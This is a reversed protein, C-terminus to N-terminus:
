SAGARPAQAPQQRLSEKRKMALYEGREMEHLQRPYREVAAFWDRFSKEARLPAPVSRSGLFAEIALYLRMSNREVLGRKGGVHRPEGDAHRGVVTFGVKDRGITGLYAEMALRGAMGYSWAYSLRILTMGGDAPMATLVIRYDHTDLPGSGARLDVELFGATRAAVRYAFQLRYAEEMPQDHKRGIGVHLGQAGDVPAPLCYKTNPPLILIDCWRSPDGLAASAHDFPYAVLAHIEGWARTEGETSDLFLTRGLPRRAPDHALADYRGRMAAALGEIGAEGAAAAPACLALATAFGWAAVAAKGM